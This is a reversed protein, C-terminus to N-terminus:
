IGFRLRNDDADLGATDPDRLLNMPAQCGFGLQPTEVDGKVAVIESTFAQM